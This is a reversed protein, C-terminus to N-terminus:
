DRKDRRAVDCEDQQAAVAMEILQGFTLHLLAHRLHEEAGRLATRRRLERLIAAEVFEQMTMDYEAAVRRAERADEERLYASMHRRGQRSSRTVQASPM